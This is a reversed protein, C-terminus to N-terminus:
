QRYFIVGDDRFDVGKYTLKIVGPAQGTKLPAMDIRWTRNPQFNVLRVIGNQVVGNFQLENIPKCISSSDGRISDEGV